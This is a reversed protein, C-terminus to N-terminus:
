QSSISVIIIISSVKMMQVAIMTVHFCLHANQRKRYVVGVIFNHSTCEM